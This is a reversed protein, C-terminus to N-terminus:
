LREITFSCGAPILKLIGLPSNHNVNLKIRDGATMELLVTKSASSKRTALLSSAGAYTIAGPVTTYSGGNPQHLLELEIEAETLLSGGNFALTYNIRYFGDSNVEIETASVNNFYSSTPLAFRDGDWATTTTASSLNVPTANTMYREIFNNYSKQIDPVGRDDLEIDFYSAPNSPDYLRIGETKMKGDMALIYNPDVSGIGVNGLTDILIDRKITGSDRGIVITGDTEDLGVIANHRINEFKMYVDGKDYVHLQRDPDDVGLGMQGATDIVMVNKWAGASDNALVITGDTEDLGVITKYSPTSILMQPAISDSHIHLLAEVSDTGIGVPGYQTYIYDQEVVWISDSSTNFTAWDTGNFYFFQEFNTDFVLLSTAPDIINLRRETGMRPILLGKEQSYVDLIASPDPSYTNIGINQAWSNGIPFLCLSALIILFLGKNMM